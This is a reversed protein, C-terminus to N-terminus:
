LAGALTIVSITTTQDIWLPSRRLARYAEFRAYQDAKQRMLEDIASPQCGRIWTERANAFWPTYLVTTIFRQGDIDEVLDQYNYIFEVNDFNVSFAHMGETRPVRFTVLNNNKQNRPLDNRWDGAFFDDIGEVMKEGEVPSKAVDLTMALFNQIQPMPSRWREEFSLTAAAREPQSRHRFRHQAPLLANVIRVFMECDALTLNRDRHHHFCDINVSEVVYRFYVDLRSSSNMIQRFSQSVVCVVSRGEIQFKWFSLEIPFLNNTQSFEPDVIKFSLSAVMGASFQTGEFFFHNYEFYSPVRKSYDESFTLM